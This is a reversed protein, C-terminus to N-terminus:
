DLTSRTAEVRTVQLGIILTIPHSLDNSDDIKFTCAFPACAAFYSHFSFFFNILFLPVVM